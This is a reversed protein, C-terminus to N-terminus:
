LLLTREPVLRVNRLMRIKSDPGTVTVSALLSGDQDRGLTKIVARWGWRESPPIPTGGNMMQTAQDLCERRVLLLSRHEATTPEDVQVAYRIRPM